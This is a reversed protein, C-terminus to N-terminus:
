IGICNQHFLEWKEKIDWISEGSGEKALLYIENAYAQSSRWKVFEAFDIKWVMEIEQLLWREGENFQWNINKLM